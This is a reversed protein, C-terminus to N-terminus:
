AWLPGLACDSVYCGLHRESPGSQGPQGWRGTAAPGDRGSWRPREKSDRQMEGEKSRHRSQSGAGGVERFPRSLARGSDREWPVGERDGGDGTKLDRWPGEQRWIDSGLTLRARTHLCNEMAPPGKGSERGLVGGEGSGREAGEQRKGERSGQSVEARLVVAGERCRGKM